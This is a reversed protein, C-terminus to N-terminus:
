TEENRSTTACGGVRGGREGGHLADGGERVTSVTVGAADALDVGDVLALELEAYLAAPVVLVATLGVWAMLEM